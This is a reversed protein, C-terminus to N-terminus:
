ITNKLSKQTSQRYNKAKESKIDCSFFVESKPPYPSLTCAYLTVLKEFGTPIATHNREGTNQKKHTQSCHFDNIVVPSKDLFVTINQTIPIQACFLSRKSRNKSGYGCSAFSPESRTLGLQMFCTGCFVKWRPFFAPVVVVFVLLLLVLVLFVVVM